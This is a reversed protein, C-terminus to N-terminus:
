SNQNKGRATGVRLNPHANSYTGHVTGDARRWGASVTVVAVIRVGASRVAVVPRIVEGTADEDAGAGPEVAAVISAAEVTAATVVAVTVVSTSAVVSVTAVIAVTAVAESATFGVAEDTATVAASEVAVSPEVATTSAPEVATSAVAATSM